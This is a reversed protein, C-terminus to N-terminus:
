NNERLVCKKYVSIHEPSLIEESDLKKLADIILKETIEGFIIEKEPVADWNAKTGGDPLQQPNIAILEQETLGVQNKFDTIIKWNMFSAKEPLLSIVVIRDLATLKVKLPIYEAKVLLVQLIFCMLVILKKTKM